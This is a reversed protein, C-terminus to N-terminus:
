NNISERIVLIAGAVVLVSGEYTSGTLLDTGFATSWRDENGHNILFLYSHDGARRRVAELGGGAGRADPEVGAEALVMVLLATLAADDLETSVYYAHGSGVANHTVAPGGRAFGTTYHAWPEAGRLQVSESWVTGIAGNDLQVSEGDALPLLEEVRIGLTEAFMGSYGGPIIQLNADFTGSFYWVVAEGGDAVFRRVNTAQEPTAVLQSPILLLSYGSLDDQPRVFDVGIGLFWLARHVRRVAAQFNFRDSPLSSSETAWWSDIDWVIAVRRGNVRGAPELSLDGLQDIFAGLEVVERFVRSDEGVHPVMTSHFAESGGLGARWQFFLAGQSGYAIHQATTRLIEGRPKAVIRGPKVTANAAQEMLLWPRGQAFSRAQDAGFAAHAAGEVGDADLYFDISVFDSAAALEWHNYNLWTSLIFNTTLPVDPSTERLIAIQERYCDLLLEASFRKFDLEHAPNSLYQTQQPALIEDWDGYGQSWFATYWARNLAALDIYRERLWRRFAEDVAPGYSVSGYENHVHWGQLAPHHGYRDGIARTIRRAAERYALAAPNYTDRSGHVLRVGARTVPMAEPHAKTFWPPPSATPTALVVSIDNAWLLDIARDLWEFAYVGERPELSSWSFIGLTATTVKAQKMLRIDELWIEEPWQEPNYDGGFLLRGNRTLDVM